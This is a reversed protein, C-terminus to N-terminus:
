GVLDMRTGLWFLRERVMPEADHEHPSLQMEKWCYQQGDGGARRLLADWRLRVDHRTSVHLDAVTEVIVVRPQRIRLYQLATQLQELNSDALGHSPEILVGDGM